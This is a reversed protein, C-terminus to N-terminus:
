DKEITEFSTETERASDPSPKFRIQRTSTLEDQCDSKRELKEIRQLRELSLEQGV